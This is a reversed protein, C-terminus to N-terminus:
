RRDVGKIVRLKGPVELQSFVSGQSLNFPHLAGADVPGTQRVVVEAEVDGATGFHGVLCLVLGTLQQTGRSSPPHVELSSLLPKVRVTGDPVAASEGEGVRGVSPLAM